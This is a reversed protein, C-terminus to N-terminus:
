EEAKEASFMRLQGNTRVLGVSWQQGESDTAGVSWLGPEILQLSSSDVTLGMRALRSAFGPDASQSPSIPLYPVLEALESSAMAAELEGLEEASPAAPGTDGVAASPSPSQSQSPEAPQRSSAAPAAEQGRSSGVMWFTLGAMLLLGAAVLVLATSRRRNV